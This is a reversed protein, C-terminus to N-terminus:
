RSSPTPETERSSHANANRITRRRTTPQPQQKRSAPHSIRTSPQASDFHGVAIENLPELTATVNTATTPPPTTIIQQKAN